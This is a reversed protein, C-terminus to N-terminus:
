RDKRNMRTYIREVIGPQYSPDAELDGEVEKAFRRVQEETLPEALGPLEFRLAEIFDLVGRRVREPDDTGFLASLGALRELAEPTFLELWGPYLAALGDAHATDTHAGLPYQLRHPLATGVYYLNLGGLLSAFMMDARCSHNAPEDRLVPLCDLVRRLAERSIMLSFPTRKRSLFSEFAHTFADFGTTRTLSWPMAYTVEPDLIALTPTLGDGRLGRKVQAHADTLIAGRSVESGTGSTTPLCAVFIGLQEVKRGGHFLPALDDIGASLMVALAKAADMTSGGGFAVVGQVGRGRIAAARRNIEDIRPNSAVPEIPVVTVGARALDAAIERLLPELSPADGPLLAVTTGLPAVLDGIRHRSGAGFVIRTPHHLEFSTDSM